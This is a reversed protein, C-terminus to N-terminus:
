EVEVREALIGIHSEGVRTAILTLARDGYSDPLFRQQLTLPRDTVGRKRVELRGVQNQRMVVRMKRADLKEVALVRFTDVFASMVPKDGTLYAIEPDIVHLDHERAFRGLLGCCVLSPDPDFFFSGIEGVEAEREQVGCYSEAAPLATARREVGSALSGYWFVTEKAEGNLSIVEIEGPAPFKELLTEIAVAPSLKLGAAPRGELLEAVRTPDPSWDDPSMIRRSGRRRSPDLFLAGTPPMTEACDAEEVEVGHVGYQEANFRTFHVASPERDFATVKLGAISMAIVDSGIGCCPDVVERIGARVFREARYNAVRESSSQQLQERTFFMDLGKTFKQTARRRLDRLEGLAEAIKKPFMGRFSEQIALPDEGSNRYLQLTDRAEDATLAQATKLDIRMGNAAAM